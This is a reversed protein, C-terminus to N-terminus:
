DRRSRLMAVKRSRAVPPGCTYAIGPRVLVRDGNADRKYIPRQWAVTTAHAGLPGESWALTAVFLVGPDLQGENDIGEAALPGMYWGSRLRRNRVRELTYTSLFAHSARSTQTESGTGEEISLDGSLEIDQVIDGTTADRVELYKEFTGSLGTPLYPTMGAYVAAMAAAYENAAEEWSAQQIPAFTQSVYGPAGQWGTLVLRIEAVESVEAM